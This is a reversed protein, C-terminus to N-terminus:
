ADKMGAQKALEPLDYNAALWVLQEFMKPCKSNVRDQFGVSSHGFIRAPCLWNKHEMIPPYERVQESRCKNCVERSLM